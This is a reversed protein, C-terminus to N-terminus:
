QAGRRLLPLLRRRPALHDVEHHRHQVDIHLLVNLCCELDVKAYVMSALEHTSTATSFALKQQAVEEFHPMSYLDYHRAGKQTYWAKPSSLADFLRKAQEPPNVIDNEAAVIMIPAKLSYLLTERVTLFSIRIDIEPHTERVQEFFERSDPDTLV